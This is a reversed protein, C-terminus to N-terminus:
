TRPKPRLGLQILDKEVALGDKLTVPGTVEFVISNDDADEITWGEPLPLMLAELELETPGRGGPREIDIEFRVFCADWPTRV